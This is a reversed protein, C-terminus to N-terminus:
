KLAPRPRIYVLAYHIRVRISYGLSRGAATGGGLETASEIGVSRFVPPSVIRSRRDDIASRDDGVTITGLSAIRTEVGDDFGDSRGGALRYRGRLRARTSGDLGVAFPPYVTGVLAGTSDISRYCVGIRTLSGIGIVTSLLAELM